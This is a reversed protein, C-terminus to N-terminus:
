HVAVTASSASKSVTLRDWMGMAAHGPIGCVLAYSGAKNAIFKFSQQVGYETGISPDPTSARPFALASTPIDMQARNAFPVIMASHVQANDTNVFDITVHWNLPVTLTMDGHGYGNFNMANNEGAYIKFTVSKQTTQQAFWQSPSKPPNSASNPPSGGCGAIVTTLFLGMTLRSILGSHKM